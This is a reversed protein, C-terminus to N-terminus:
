IKSIASSLTELLHIIQEKTHVSSITFRFYGGPPAGQYTIFPPFIGKEILFSFLKRNKEDDRLTMSIIPFLNELIEIGVEKLSRKFFATNERLKERESDDALLEVAKLSAGAIPPPLATGGMYALSKREIKEKLEKSGTIFGGYVGFAKSLTGTHFAKHRDEGYFELTGLGRNGIVGSAHADDILLKAGFREAVALYENVPFIRGTSAHVGETMIITNKGLHKFKKELDNSNGQEFEVIKLEASRAAEKLSSHARNDVVVQSCTDTIGQLLINNAIYGSSFVLAAEEHFFEALKEELELHLPHTGTTLRSAGTNLGYKKAADIFSRIVEPHSSMRFYDNGAFYILKKGKYIVYVRDIQQLVYKM